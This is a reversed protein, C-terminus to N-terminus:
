QRRFLPERQNAKVQLDVKKNKKVPLRLQLSDRRGPGMYMLSRTSDTGTGPMKKTFYKPHDAWGPSAKKLELKQPLATDPRPAQARLSRSLFVCCLLLLFSKAM